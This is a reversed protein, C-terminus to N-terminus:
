PAAPRGVWATVRNRGAHKADYMADDARGLLQQLSTLDAQWSAVGFSATVPLNLDEYHVQMAEVTKRFREAALVGDSQSINPSIVLFEEGGWRCVTDETRATTRLCKALHQLVADGAAHGYKDNVAKFHDVDISIVTMPQEYRVAASWAQDLAMQGARRNSIDTLQDTLSAQQLRHNSHELAQALRSLREHNQEWAERLKVYRWAAKLRASLAVLNVPKPQFDDVGANFAQVLEGEQDASTLMVIYIECGWDSSRLERCLQLGDMVPMRWDTLVVHPLFISAQTFADGGNRSTKVTYGCEQGLWTELIHSTIPDDEVIQVRLWKSDLQQDPRIDDSSVSAPSTISSTQVAAGESSYVTASQLKTRANLKASKHIFRAPFFHSRLAPIFGWPL